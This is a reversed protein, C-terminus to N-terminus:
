SQEGSDLFKKIVALEDKSYQKHVSEMLRNEDDDGHAVIWSYIDILGNRSAESVVEHIIGRRELENAIACMMAELKENKDIVSIAISPDIGNVYKIETRVDYRDRGDYCPM